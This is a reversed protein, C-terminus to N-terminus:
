PIGRNIRPEQRTFPPWVPEARDGNLWVLEAEVVSKVRQQHTEILANRRDESVCLEADHSRVCSAFATRLVARPLRDDIGDLITAAAAFGPAGACDKRTALDLLSRIDAQTANDKLLQTIGVFAIAAPNMTLTHAPEYLPNLEKRAADAFVQWAWEQNRARLVEDGDRVLLLASATVVWRHDLSDDPVEQAWRVAATALDSSSRTANEVAVMIAARLTADDIGPRSQDELRALHRAEAEPAVYEMSVTDDAPNETAQRWNRPDLRNLAHFAMFVPDNLSSEEGCPGLKELATRLLSVLRERLEPPGSVAYHEFLDILSRFSGARPHPDEVMRDPLREAVYESWVLSRDLCLLEPCALFPIASERSAPWADLLLDVGVLLHTAPSNSYNFIDTLVAGVSDGSQIRQKGWKSLAMLACTVCFDQSQSARAWPYTEPWPFAHDGDSFPLSVVNDGGTTGKKYHSTAYDVIQRVLSMGVKPAHTLLDIFPGHDPSPPSYHHIVSLFPPHPLWRKTTDEEDPMLAAIALQALEDPAAHSLSHPFRIVNLKM